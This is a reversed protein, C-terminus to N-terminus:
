QVRLAKREAKSRERYRIMSMGHRYGFLRPEAPKTVSFAEGNWAELIYHRTWNERQHVFFESDMDPATDMEVFTERHGASMPMPMPHYELGRSSTLVYM